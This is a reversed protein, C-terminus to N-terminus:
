MRIRDGLLAGGTFPSSPDVALVAVKDNRARFLTVMYDLLTSKGAGPPGTLGITQRPLPLRGAANSAAGATAPNESELLTILRSAARRDGSQVARALESPDPDPNPSSAM